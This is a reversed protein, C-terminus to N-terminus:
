YSEFLNTCDARLLKSRSNNGTGRDPSLPNDQEYNQEIFTQNQQVTIGTTRTRDIFEDDSEVTDCVLYQAIHNRIELPLMALHCMTDTTSEVEMANISFINFIM